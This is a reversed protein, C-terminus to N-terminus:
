STALSSLIACGSGSITFFLESLSCYVSFSLSGAGFAATADSFCGSGTDESGARAEDLVAGGAVRVRAEAVCSLGTVLIAPAPRVFFSKLAIGSEMASISRLLSKSGSLGMDCETFVSNSLPQRPPLGAM